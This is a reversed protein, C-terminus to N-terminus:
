SIEGEDRYGAKHLLLVLTFKMIESPQISIPGIVFWRRALGRGEGLFPVLMLLLTAFAFAHPTFKRIFRYDVYSAAIMAFIGIGGFIIQRKIYHLSDGWKQLAFAYSSSFVMITGYCVLLIIIILMPRDITGKVRVIDTPKVFDASMKPASERKPTGKSRMKPTEASNFQQGRNNNM